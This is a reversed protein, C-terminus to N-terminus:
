PPPHADLRITTTLGSGIDFAQIQLAHCRRAGRAHEAQPPGVLSNRLAPAYVVQHIQFHGFVHPDSVSLPHIDPDPSNESCKRDSYLNKPGLAM